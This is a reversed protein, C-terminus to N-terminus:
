APFFQLAKREFVMIQCDADSGNSPVDVADFALIAENLLHSRKPMRKAMLAQGIRERASASEAESL